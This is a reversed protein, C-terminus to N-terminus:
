SQFSVNREMLVKNNNNNNNNNNINHQILLSCIETGIVDDVQSCITGLLVLYEYINIYDDGLFM